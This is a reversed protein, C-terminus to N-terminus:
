NAFYASCGCYAVEPTLASFITECFIGERRDHLSDFNPSEKRVDQKDIAKLCRYRSYCTSPISSKIMAM